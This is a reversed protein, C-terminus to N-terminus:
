RTASPKTSLFSAAAPILTFDALPIPLPNGFKDTYVFTSKTKDSRLGSRKQKLWQQMTYVAPNETNGYRLGFVGYVKPIRELHDNITPLPQKQLLRPSKTVPKPAASVTVPVLLIPCLLVVTKAASYATQRM